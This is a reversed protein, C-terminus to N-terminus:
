ERKEQISKRLEQYYSEPHVVESHMLKVWEDLDGRWQDDIMLWENGDVTYELVGIRRVEIDLKKAVWTIEKVYRNRSAYRGIKGTSEMQLYADLEELEIEEM